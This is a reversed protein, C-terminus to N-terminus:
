KVAGVSGNRVVSNISEFEMEHMYTNVVFEYTLELKEREEDDDGSGADNRMAHIARAEFVYMCVPARGCWM